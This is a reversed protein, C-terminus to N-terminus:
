SQSITCSIISQLYRAKGKAGWLNYIRVAQDLHSRSSGSDGLSHLHFGLREHALAQEFLFTSKEALAIARTYHAYASESQGSVSALEAELLHQKDCCNEPCKLSFFTVFQRLIRKGTRLNKRRNRKERVLAFAVMARFFQRYVEQYTPVICGHREVWIAFKDAQTCDDFIYALMTCCIMIDTSIASLGSKSALECEPLLDMLEGKFSLAEDRSSNMLHLIQQMFPLTMKLLSEQRSSTMDGAISRWKCLIDELRVGCHFAHFLYCNSCLFAFERDGTHLGVQHAQLLPQLSDKIPRKWPDIVGYHAAYVRPLYEVMGYSDLLKLGLQGFRHATDVDKMELCVMGYIAFTSSSFNSLGYKLTIKLSRLGVLAGLEPQTLLCHLYILYLIQLCSLKTADTLPELRMLQEDSKGRLLYRVASLESLIHLKLRRRPFREGLEELAKLGVDIAEQQKSVTGFISILTANAQLRHIPSKAYVLIIQVLEESREYQSTVLNMEAAANYLALTLDYAQIWRLKEDAKDM